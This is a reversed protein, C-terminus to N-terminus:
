LGAKRIEKGIHDTIYGKWRELRGMQDDNAFTPAEPGIFLFKRLPMKKRADDSQHYIGYSVSTGFVLSLNTIKSVSGANSPGLLSASLKGSRVLLPYDFGVAKIKAIQYASKSTTKFSRKKGKQEYSGVSNKFAPYKGPGSLKFIAQESKYFDRLILGFPVRLDDSVESAKKLANRFKRDNDVSYSTFSEAM